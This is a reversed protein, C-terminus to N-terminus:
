KKKNKPVCNPVEKGNKKKMGIQEYDDWCPGSNEEDLDVSETKQEAALVKKGLPTPNGKKDYMQGILKKEASTLEELQAVEEALFSDFETMLSEYIDDEDLSYELPNDGMSPQIRKKQRSISDATKKSFDDIDLEQPGSGVFEADPDAEDVVTVVEEGGCGCTGGCGCDSQEAKAAEIGALTLLRVIEDPHKTSVNTTVLSKGNDETTSLNYHKENM